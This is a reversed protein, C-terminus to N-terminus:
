MKTNFLHVYFYAKYYFWKNHTNGYLFYIQLCFRASCQMVKITVKSPESLGDTHCTNSLPHPNPHTLKESNSLVTHPVQLIYFFSFQGNKIKKLNKQKALSRLWKEM